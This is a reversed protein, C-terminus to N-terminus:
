KLETVKGDRTLIATGDATFTVEDTSKASSIKVGSDTRELAPPQSGKEYPYLVWTTPTGPKTEIRLWKQYEGYLWSENWFPPPMMAEGKTAKLTAQWKKQTEDKPDLWQPKWGPLPLTKVNNTKMLAAMRDKWQAQTENERLTYQDPGLMYEDGFHWGGITTKPDTADALFVLMDKDWQGSATFLNGDQSVERALLHINLQQPETSTTTDRVVLYDGLPSGGTNKVFLLERRHTIPAVARSPYDRGFENDRPYVPRLIVSDVTREAVILDAVPTTAFSLVKSSSIIEEQADISRGDGNHKLQSFNGFTMSNHLAAHDGRPTYSCNYDLSVPTGDSYFHYSNEDNHYHGRARGAKFSLFSEGKTGFGDRMVAGFGSFAQSAWDM